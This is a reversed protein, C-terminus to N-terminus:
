EQAEPFTVDRISIDMLLFSTLTNKVAGLLLGHSDKSSLKPALIEEDLM